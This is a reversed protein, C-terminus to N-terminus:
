YINVTLKMVELREHSLQPLLIQASSLIFLRVFFVCRVSPGFVYHM